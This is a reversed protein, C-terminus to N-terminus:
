TKSSTVPILEVRVVLVEKVGERAEKRYVGDGSGAVVGAHFSM